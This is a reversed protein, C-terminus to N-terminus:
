YCIDGADESHSCDHSEWGNHSCSAINSESGTCHVNDLWITGNGQGFYARQIGLARSYPLGLSRCFVRADTNDWGDDCVTGWVGNHYVEVRGSYKGNAIKGFLRYLSRYLLDSECNRGTYGSRCSCSYTSTQSRCTAGNRCPQNRCHDRVQCNTGYYGASCFCRYSNVMDVCTGGNQCPRSSCEDIGSECNRGTYGSRCSCFYTSTQSRCTSGNRCPQNRCHDRVQCNTGYYGASCFCRYSNVMDVCTGGNQCPRSSCEDIGFQCYTGTFGGPCTCHFGGYSNQCTAGLACPSNYCENIDAECRAGQFGLTCSCRFSGVLDVCEAGNKCPQSLCHNTTTECNSGTYGHPCSCSYTIAHSMCTAGNQCPRSRCLDNVQCNTGYYGASCLCQYSNVMDVCTGGNQCPRSSCESIELQCLKGTFGPLCHCDFGGHNNSCTAGRACPNNMCENVDNSENNTSVLNNNRQDSNEKPTFALSWVVIAVLAACIIGTLVLAIQLRRNVNTKPLQAFRLKPDNANPRPIRLSEYVNSEEVLAHDADSSTEYIANVYVASQNQPTVFLKMCLVGADEAHNCNEVAWGNHGCSGISSESGTCGVDDLWITGKGQGFYASEVALANSYLLSLSKCFVRADTNDWSDDCVTGWDGNHYVEVRGGYKSNINIGILRYPHSSVFASECNRGTYRYPCSCSYSLTENRCIAGNQCPTSRCHDAEQCNTGYYGASCLCQYSNMMDVCTGGNQCPHSSCECIELQCLKGTFGPLCDCDFSGHNNRCTAGRACPNNMCENVDNDCWTGQYSSSCSCRFSAVSNECKAGNKCPSSICHNTTKEKQTHVLLWVVTAVLAACIIGVLVLAIQLRRNVKTKPPQTIRINPDNDNNTPRPMRFSEYVSPTEEPALDVESSTEYTANIYAASQSQPTTFLGIGSRDAM